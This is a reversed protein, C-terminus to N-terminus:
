EAGELKKRRLQGCAADIDAGLTRRSTVNIKCKTLENTFLLRAEKSSKSFNNSKTENVNILNVHCLMGKLLQALERACEPTDNVGGILAYEFSIRRGTKKIYERCEPILKSLPYTKNVPMLSSRLKDNPAHLSVSLTIPLEEEALRRIQPVLGCTSLSMNRYGINFLDPSNALKLFRIVNDYNDLPEGIGMLVLHGIRFDPDTELMDRTIYEMQLLIEASTLDRSFGLGSSACFRCGMKCGAQTSLCVSFGHNYELLVSEVCDGSEFTFLYKRTSDLKSCFREVSKPASIYFDQELKERLPKSLDTMQSFSDAHRSLWKIIQGARYKEIGSDSLRIELESRSFLRLDERNDM